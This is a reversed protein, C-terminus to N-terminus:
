RINGASIQGNRQIIAYGNGSAFFSYTGDNEIRSLKEISGFRRKLNAIKKIQAKTLTKM